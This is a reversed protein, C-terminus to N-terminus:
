ILHQPAPVAASVSNTVLRMLLLMSTHEEREEHKLAICDSFMLNNSSSLKMGKRGTSVRLNHRGHGHEFLVEELVLTVNTGIENDTSDIPSATMEEGYSCM